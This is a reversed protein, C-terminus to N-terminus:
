QLWPFTNDVKYRYTQASRISSLYIVKARETQYLFGFTITLWVIRVTKIFLIFKDQVKM